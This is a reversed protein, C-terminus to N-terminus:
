KIKNKIKENIKLLKINFSLLKCRLKEARVLNKIAFDTRKEVSLIAVLKDHDDRLIDDRKESCDVTVVCVTSSMNTDFKRIGRFVDRSCSKIILDRM